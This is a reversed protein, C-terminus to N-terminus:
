SAPEAQTELLLEAELCERDRGVTAVARVSGDGIFRVACNRQDVNGIVDVADWKAAYGVYRVSVDYQQTWFFPVTTFPIRRGMINRAAAQGQRQAVVWHEVRVRRGARVEPYSAIDGAAYVGRVRTELFEDVEVGEPGGLGAAQALESLPRVGVGLLVVDAEVFSGDDLEVRDEHIAALTRGLHFTVGHQAHVSKLLGGLQVGLTREFPVQEPAVVAVQLGRQRLSAAAEMGIFSAGVVVARRASDASEILRRCDSLSRLVHVHDATAGPLRPRVPRAGTALLLSTFPAHEGTSLLVLRTELDISIATAVSREIGMADHFERTRLPLWEEPANGALYDKSLNPRDYPAAQDPDVLTISGSYGEQRLTEAAASGAAGAGIIVVSESSSTASAPARTTAPATASSEDVPGTVRVTGGVVETGWRRLANLAPAALVEGTRLSFCAHHWPCRIVPGESVGDILQAGYHTCTGSVAWIGEADRYVLVSENGAHGGLVGGVTLDKM